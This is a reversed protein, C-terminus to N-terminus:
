RRLALVHGARSLGVGRSVLVEFLHQEDSMVVGRAGGGPPHLLQYSRAVKPPDTLTVTFREEGGRM